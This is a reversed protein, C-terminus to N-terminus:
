LRNHMEKWRKVLSSLHHQDNFRIQNKTSPVDIEEELHNEDTNQTEHGLHTVFGRHNDEGRINLFEDNKQGIVPSTSPLAVGKEFHDEDRFTRSVGTNQLEHDSHAVFGRRTDERGFGSLVDNKVPAPEPQPSAMSRVDGTTEFDGRLETFQVRKSCEEAVHRILEGEYRYMSSDFGSLNAVTTLVSRWKLVKDKDFREEFRALGQGFSGTQHRVDSPDVKYYIPLIRGQDGMCEFIKALEDLCWSSGAFNPSLVVLAFRSEEIAKLLYPVILQGKADPGDDRVINLNAKNQLEDYLHSLFGNRTDVGRFNIFVDYKWRPSIEDTAQRTESEISKSYIFEVIQEVFQRESEYDNKAWGFIDSVTVLADKWKRLRESQDGFRQEHKDFAPAYAGRQHRVDSPDMHYFVPLAVTEKFDMYQIIQTLEDLCWSSSAYNESLVVIAFRSEQIAKLTVQSIGEGIDFIMKDDDMFTKIERKQLENYLYSTFGRGTDQRRFSLFVEYKGRPAASSEASTPLSASATPTNLAM